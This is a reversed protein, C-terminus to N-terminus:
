RKREGDRKKVRKMKRRKERNRRRSYRKRKGGIKLNQFRVHLEEDTTYPIEPQNKLRRLRNELQKQSVRDNMMESDTKMILETVAPDERLNERKLFSDIQKSRLDPNPGFEKAAKKYALVNFLAKKKAGRLPVGGTETEIYYGIDSPNLSVIEEATM